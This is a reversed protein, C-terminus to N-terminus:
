GTAMSVRTQQWTDMLESNTAAETSGYGSHHQIGDQYIKSGGATQIAEGTEKISSMWPAAQASGTATEIADQKWIDTQMSTTVIVM